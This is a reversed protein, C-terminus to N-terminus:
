FVQEQGMMPLVFVTRRLPGFGKLSNGEVEDIIKVGLDIANQRMKFLLLFGSIGPGTVYYSRIAYM